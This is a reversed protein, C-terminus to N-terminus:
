KSVILLDMDKPVNKAKGMFFEVNFNAFWKHVTNEAISVNGCIACIKKQQKYMNKGEHFYFIMLHFLHIDNEEM